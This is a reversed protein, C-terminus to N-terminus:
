DVYESEIGRRKMEGHIERMEEDIETLQDELNNGDDALKEERATLEDDDMDKAGYM